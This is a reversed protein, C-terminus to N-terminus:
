FFKYAAAVSVMDVNNEGTRRDGLGDFRQVELRLDTNDNVSVMGGVGYLPRARVDSHSDAFEGGADAGTLHNRVTADIVGVKGYLSLPGYVPAIGLAAVDWGRDRVSVRGEGSSFDAHYRQEGLDVYGGEVAFNPTFSYGVQLQYATPDNDFHTATGAVDNATLDARYGLSTDADSRTKYHAQGVAGVVYVNDALTATTGTISCFLVLMRFNM